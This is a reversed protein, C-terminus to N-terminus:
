AILYRILIVGLFAALLGLVLSFGAYLVAYLYQNDQLLTLSEFSFSSFTTFGGCFGTAILIRYEPALNATESLAYIIGIIFCGLLNVTMTGFPFSTLLRSQVADSLLYRAVSGIFGGAGVLLIFKM